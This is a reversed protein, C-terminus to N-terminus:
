SQPNAQRYARISNRLDIVAQRLTKHADMLSKRVNIVTQSAQQLDTVMGNDDFGAHASILTGAADHSSQATAVQANFTALATTLSSTDKGQANQADIYNQVKTAITEAGPLTKTQTNFWTQERKFQRERMDKRPDPRNAQPTPAQAYTPAAIALNMVVLMAVAAIALAGKMLTSKSIRDFMNM